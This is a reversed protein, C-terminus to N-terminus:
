RPPRIMGALTPVQSLRVDLYQTVDRSSIDGQNYASLVSAIFGRGLDRVKMRYYDGGSGEEQEAQRRYEAEWRPKMDDYVSRSARELDILRLVMAERSVKYRNSLRAIQEESWRSLRTAGSVDAQRLVDERPMLVAAAVRNCFAEVSPSTGQTAGPSRLVHLAPEEDWDLLIHALEHILSFAKGTAADKGNVGIVPFPRTRETFGRMESLNVRPVHIVFIGKDEVSAAWFRFAEKSDRWAVQREIPVGLWQRTTSGAAEPGDAMRLRLDIAPPREGGLDALHRAIVQQRAARRLGSAFERSAPGAQVSPRTRFAVLATPEPPPAALLFTALPQGYAKAAERLQALTARKEGTEWAVLTGSSVGIRRAADDPSFLASERAWALVAPAVEPRFPAM